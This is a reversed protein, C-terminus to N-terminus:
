RLHVKFGVDDTSESCMIESEVSPDNWPPIFGLM